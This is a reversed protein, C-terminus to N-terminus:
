VNVAYVFSFFMIRDTDFNDRSTSQQGYIFKITICASLLLEPILRALVLDRSSANTKGAILASSYLMRLCDGYWIESENTTFTDGYIVISQYPKTKDYLPLNNLTIM